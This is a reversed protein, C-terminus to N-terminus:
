IKANSIEMRKSKSSQSKNTSFFNDKKVGGSAEGGREGLFIIFGTHSVSFTLPHAVIQM